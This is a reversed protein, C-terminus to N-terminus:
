STPAPPGIWSSVRGPRGRRGPARGTLGSPGSGHEVRDDPVRDIGSHDLASDSAAPSTTAPGARSRRSGSWWRARCRMVQGHELGVATASSGDAVGLSRLLAGICYGVMALFSTRKWTMHFRRIETTSSCASVSIRVAKLVETRSAPSRDAPTNSRWPRMTAWATVPVGPWTLVMAAATGWKMSSMPGSRM